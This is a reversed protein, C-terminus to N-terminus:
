DATGTEALKVLRGVQEAIVKDVAPALEVLGADPPGAIKYIVKLITKGQPAGLAFTLVGTTARDQLPGLNANFRLVKGPQIFLVTGHMVSAGDWSECWCGGAHLDVSMNSAKGSWTHASNWWAPLQTIASWLKEPPANVDRQVTVVFGTPAVASTEAFAPGAALALWVTTVIWRNM